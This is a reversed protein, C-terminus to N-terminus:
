LLQDIKDRFLTLAIRAGHPQGKILAESFNRVQKATVKPPMPPENPDVVAELVAPGPAALFEQMVTDIEDPREVCFGE